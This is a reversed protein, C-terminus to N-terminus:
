PDGSLGTLRMRPRAEQRSGHERISISDHRERTLAPHSFDVTGVIELDALRDRELKKGRIELAVGVAKLPEQSLDPDSALHRVGIDAADVVDALELPVVEDGHLVHVPFVEGRQEAPDAAKWLLLGEVECTLDRGAERGRM